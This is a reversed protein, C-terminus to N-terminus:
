LEDHNVVQNCLAATKFHMEYECRSPEGVSTLKNEKGCSLYVTTSRAPGNWCMTGGEYKMITYRDSGTDVWTMKTSFFLCIVCM